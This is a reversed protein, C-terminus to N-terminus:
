SHSVKRVFVSMFMIKKPLFLHTCHAPGVRKTMDSIATVAVVMLDYDAVQPIVCM